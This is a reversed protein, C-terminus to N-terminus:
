KEKKDAIRATRKKESAEKRIYFWCCVVSRAFFIALLIGTAVVNETASLINLDSTSYYNLLETVIDLTENITANSINEIKDELTHYAEIMEM